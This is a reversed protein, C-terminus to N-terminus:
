KYIYIKKFLFIVKGRIKAVVILHNDEVNIAIPNLIRHDIM